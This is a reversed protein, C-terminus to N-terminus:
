CLVRRLDRLMPLLHNCGPANIVGLCIEKEEDSWDNIESGPMLDLVTRFAEAAQADRIMAEIRAVFDMALRRREGLNLAHMAEAFATWVREEEADPPPMFHVDSEPDALMAEHINKRLDDRAAQLKAREEDSLDFFANVTKLLMPRLATVLGIVSGEVTRERETSTVLDNIHEGLRREVIHRMIGAHRIAALLMASEALSMDVPLGDENEILREMRKVEPDDPPLEHRPQGRRMQEVWDLHSQNIKKRLQLLWFDRAYVWQIHDWQHERMINTRLASAKDTDGDKLLAAYQSLRDFAMDDLMIDEGYQVPPLGGAQTINALLTPLVGVLKGM